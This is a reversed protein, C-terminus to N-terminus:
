STRLQQEYLEKWRTIEGEYIEAAREFEEPVPRDSNGVRLM